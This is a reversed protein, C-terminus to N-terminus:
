HEERLKQKAGEEPQEQQRRFNDDLKANVANRAAEDGSACECPDGGAVPMTLRVLTDNQQLARLLMPYQSSQMGTASLDLTQLGRNLPLAQLLCEVGNVGLPNGHFRLERLTSNHTLLRAFPAVETPGIHCMHFYCARLHVNTELAACLLAACEASLRRGSFDAKDIRSNVKLQVELLSYAKPGAWSVVLHDIPCCPDAFYSVLEARDSESLLDFTADEADVLLM